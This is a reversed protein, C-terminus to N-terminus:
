MLMELTKVTHAIAAARNRVGLKEYIHELHKKVTRESIHLILAVETNEKGQTIWFLVEAERKTLGLAAMAAPSFKCPSREELLLVYHETSNDSIFRIILHRGQEEGEFQLLAVSRPKLNPTRLVIQRDVWQQLNKTLCNQQLSPCQFYKKLLAWACQTMLTVKGEANLIIINTQEAADILQTLLYLLQAVLGANQDAQLLHSYRLDSFDSNQYKQEVCNPKLSNFEVFFNASLDPLVNSKQHNSQHQALGNPTEVRVQNVPQIYTELFHVQSEGILPPPSLQINETRM